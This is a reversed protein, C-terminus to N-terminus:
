LEIDEGYEKKITEILHQKVKEVNMGNWKVRLPFAKVYGDLCKKRDRMRRPEITVDQGNKRKPKESAHKQELANGLINIFHIESDTGWTPCGIIAAM